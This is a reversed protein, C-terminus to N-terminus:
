QQELYAEDPEERLKIALVVKNRAQRKVTIGGLVKLKLVSDVHELCQCGGRRGELVTKKSVPDNLTM